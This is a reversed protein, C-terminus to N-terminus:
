TSAAAQTAPKGQRAHCKPCPCGAPAAPLAGRRGTLGAAPGIADLVAFVGPRVVRYFINLGDRRDRVLGAERLIMLHQSIYAQRLRLSAEMHCVCHEGDRLVALIALRTPHSLTKLFEAEARFTHM